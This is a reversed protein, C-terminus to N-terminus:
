RQQTYNKNKKYATIIQEYLEGTSCDLLASSIIISKNYRWNTMFRLFKKILNDNISEFASPKLSLEISRKKLKKIEIIDSWYIKGISGYTTNDILFNDSIILAHKKRFSTLLSYLLTSQFLAGVIGINRIHGPTSFVNRLFREPECIFFISILLFVLVITMGLLIRLKKFEIKRIEQITLTM